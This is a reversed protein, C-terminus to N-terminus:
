PQSRGVIAANRQQAKSLDDFRVIRGGAVRRAEAQPRALGRSAAREEGFVLAAEVFEARYRMPVWAPIHVGRARLASERQVLRISALRAMM